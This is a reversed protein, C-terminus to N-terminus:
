GPQNCSAAPLLRGLHITVVDPPRDAEAPLSDPGVSGPKCTLQRECAQGSPDFPTHIYRQSICLLRGHRLGGYELGVPSLRHSNRLLQRKGIIHTLDLDDTVPVRQYHNRRFLTPLSEKLTTGM